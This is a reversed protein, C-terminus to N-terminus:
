GAGLREAVFVRAFRADRKVTAESISLAKAVQEVECGAIFRMEFVQRARPDLQQLAILASDIAMIQGAQDSIAIDSTALDDLSLVESAHRKQSLRARAYDVLIHRIATAATALFHGRDQFRHANKSFIKIYADNVLDGTALTPGRAGRRIARRALREMEGVVYRMLEPDVTDAANLRATLNLEAAPESTHNASM